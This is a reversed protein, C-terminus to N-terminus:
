DTGNRKELLYALREKTEKRSKSESNDEKVIFKEPEILGTIKSLMEWVKEKSVTKIKQSGGDKTITESVESIMLADMLELSDSEKLTVGHPGWKVAKRIDFQSAHVLTKLMSLAQRDLSSFEAKVISDLEKQISPNALLQSSTVNVRHPSYGAKRAAESANFSCAIYHRCFAKQKGTLGRKAM